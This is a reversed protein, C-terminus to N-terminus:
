RELKTWDITEGIRAAVTEVDGSTHYLMPAASVSVGTTSRTVRVERHHSSALNQTFEGGEGEVHLAGNCACIYTNNEDEVAVFFCTGRVGAAATSTKISFRPEDGPVAALNRLVMAVAGKQLTAGKAIAKGDFRLTTAAAMHVINRTNFVVQCVSEKATTILAGPQVDDGVAAPSGNMTVEGEIYVISAKDAAFVASGALLFAIVAACMMRKM